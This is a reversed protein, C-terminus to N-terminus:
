IVKYFLGLALKKRFEPSPEACIEEVIIEKDLIQLAQRLVENCFLKRGILYIEVNYAHIFKASLGGFIVRASIVTENDESDLMYLFGANVQAHANQYRPM